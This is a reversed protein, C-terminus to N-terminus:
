GRVDLVFQVGGGPRGRPDNGMCLARRSPHAHLPQDGRPAGAGRQQGLTRGAGPRFARPDAPQAVGGPASGLGDGGPPLWEGGPFGASGAECGGRPACPRRRESGWIREAHDETHVRRSRTVGAPGATGHPGTPGSQPAAAPSGTSVIGGASGDVATAARWGKWRRATGRRRCSDRGQLVRKGDHRPDVLTCAYARVAPVPIGASM